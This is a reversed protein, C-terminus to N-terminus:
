DGQNVPYEADYAAKAKDRIATIEDVMKSMGELIKAQAKQKDPVEMNYFKDYARSGAKGIKNVCDNLVKGLKAM